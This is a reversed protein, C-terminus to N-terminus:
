LMGVILLTIILAGSEVRATDPAVDYCGDALALTLLPYLTCLRQVATIDDVAPAPVTLTLTADAVTHGGDYLSCGGDLTATRTVRRAVDPRHPAYVNRLVVVGLPDFTRACLGVVPMM